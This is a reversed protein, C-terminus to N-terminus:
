LKDVAAFSGVFKVSAESPERDTACQNTPSTVDSHGRAIGFLDLASEPIDLHSRLVQPYAATSAMACMGLGAAEAAAFLYGLWVGVDLTAYEGLTAPRTVVALHPADFIEYNRLWASWRGAKDGREIGMAGYLAAGCARRRALFPEPYAGPFPVDPTPVAKKATEVLAESVARTTPQDLLRVNWPQINCWSPAQQAAEFVTRLLSPEVPDPLFARASRRAGFLEALQELTM